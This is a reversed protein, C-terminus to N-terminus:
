SEVPGPTPEVPKPLSGEYEEITKDALDLWAETAMLIQEQKEATTGGEKAVSSAALNLFLGYQDYKIAFALEYRLRARQKEDMNKVEMM